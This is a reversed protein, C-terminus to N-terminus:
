FPVDDSMQLRGEEIGRDLAKLTMRAIRTLRDAIRQIEHLAKKNDCITLTHTVWDLHELLSKREADLQEYTATRSLPLTLPDPDEWATAWVPPRPQVITPKVQALKAQVLARYPPATRRTRSSAKAQSKM